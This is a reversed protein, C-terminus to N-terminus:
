STHGSLSCVTWEQPICEVRQRDSTRPCLICYCDVWCGTVQGRVGAEAGMNLLDGVKYNLNLWLSANISTIKFFRGTRKEKVRYRWDDGSSTGGSSESAQVQALVENHLQGSSLGYGDFAYQLNFLMASAFVAISLLIKTKKM